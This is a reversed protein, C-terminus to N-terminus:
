GMNTKELRIFIRKFFSTISIYGFAFIYFFLHRQCFNTFIGPVFSRNTEHFCPVLAHFKRSKTPFIMRTPFASPFSTFSIPTNKYVAFLAKLMPNDHFFKYASLKLYMLYNM